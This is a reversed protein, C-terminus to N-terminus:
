RAKNLMGPSLDVGILRHAYPRLLPGCLGTGCGADLVQLTSDPTTWEAAVLTALLEPAQYDLRQLKQDFSDAFGDFLAQLYDDAARSPVNDGTVAALMYRAAPEEPSQEAWQRYCAVAEEPRNLTYLLLGLQRYGDTKGPDRRLGEQLTAIAAEPQDNASLLRGLAFYADVHDPNLAIAQQLAEIVAAPNEQVRM